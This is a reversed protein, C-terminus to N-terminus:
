GGAVWRGAKPQFGTVFDNDAQDEGQVLWLPMKAYNLLPYRETLQRHITATPDRLYRSTAPFYRIVYEYPQQVPGEIRYDLEANHCIVTDGTYDLAQEGYQETKYSFTVSADIRGPVPIRVILARLPIVPCRLRDNQWAAAPKGAAYLDPSFQSDFLIIDKGIFPTICELLAASQCLDLFQWSDALQAARSWPNHLEWLQWPRPKRGPQYIVALQEQLFPLYDRISTAPIATATHCDGPQAQADDPPTTKLM